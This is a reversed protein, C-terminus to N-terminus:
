GLWGISHPSCPLHFLQLLRSHRRSVAALAVAAALLHLPLWDVPRVVSPIRGDASSAVSCTNHRPIPFLDLLFLFSHRHLLLRVTTSMMMMM